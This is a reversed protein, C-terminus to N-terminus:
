LAEGTGDSLNWTAPDVFLDLLESVFEQLSRGDQTKVCASNDLLFPNSNLLLEQATLTAALFGGRTITEELLRYVRPEALLTSVCQVGGPVIVLRHNMVSPLRGLLVDPRVAIGHQSRILRPSLGVLQIALGAQRMKAVFYIVPGEEFGPAILLLVNSGSLQESNSAMCLIITALM